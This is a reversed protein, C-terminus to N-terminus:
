VCSLNLGPVLVVPTKPTVDRATCHASLVDANGDGDLYIAYVSNAYDASTAIVQQSPTPAYHQALKCPGWGVSAVCHSCGVKAHRDREDSEPDQMGSRGRSGAGPCTACAAQWGSDAQLLLLHERSTGASSLRVGEEMESAGERKSQAGDHRESLATAKISVLSSTENTTRCSRRRQGRRCRLGRDHRVGRRLHRV